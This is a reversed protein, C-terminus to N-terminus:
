LKVVRQVWYKEGSVDSIRLLYIGQPLEAMNLSAQGNSFDLSNSIMVKGEANSLQVLALGALDDLVISLRERVPNPYTKVALSLESTGVSGDCNNDIGDIVETADPNVAANNDDCDLNNASFGPLPTDSCTSIALGTGGFGDGDLDSFYIYQPLGDDIQGNCNNDLGDCIEVANTNIAANTDDCDNANAVYGTPVLSLCSTTSDVPNGDGDGDADAFFTYVPLEDDFLGNCDNDLNDCLEAADPHIAADADNCDLNNTV